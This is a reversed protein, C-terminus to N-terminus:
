QPTTNASLAASLAKWVSSGKIREFHKTGLLSLGLNLYHRMGFPCLMVARLYAKQAKGLNGQRCYEVGVSLYQNSLNRRLSRAHGHKKLMIEMGQSIAELNTWIKEQHLSYLLLPEVVYDFRYRKALRIWLDYDQFSPLSEDFMGVFELCERKVMVSSTGGVCNDVMIARSLDGKKKPVIHRIIKGNAKDVTMYGTYVCGVQVPSATLVTIQKQLKEPLWEDDDDLFAVYQGASQRIGTNRAAAGGRHASHRVYHIREDRFSKVVSRTCDGSADDVILVEFDHFSQRIVSRVAATLFEARNYTPIVVSVQPM